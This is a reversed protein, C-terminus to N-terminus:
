IFTIKNNILFIIEDENIIVGYINFESKDLISVGVKNDNQNNKKLSYASHLTQYIFDDHNISTLMRYFVYQLLLTPKKCKNGFLFAM